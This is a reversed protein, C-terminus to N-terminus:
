DTTGNVICVCNDSGFQNPQRTSCQPDDRWQGDVLLRYEYRGPPLSITKKWLGNKDKKLTIPAQDWGTFDGALSVSQASPAHYTFTVKQKVSKQNAM